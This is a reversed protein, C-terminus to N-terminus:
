LLRACPSLERDGDEALIKTQRTKKRVNEKKGIEGMSGTECQTAQMFPTHDYRQKSRKIVDAGTVSGDM